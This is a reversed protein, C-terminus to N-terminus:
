ECTIENCNTHYDNNYKGNVWNVCNATGNSYQQCHHTTTDEYRQSCAAGCLLIGIIALYKM